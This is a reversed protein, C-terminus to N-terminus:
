SDARLGAAIGAARQQPSAQTIPQRHLDLEQLAEQDGIVARDTLYKRRESSLGPMRPRHRQELKTVRDEFNTM